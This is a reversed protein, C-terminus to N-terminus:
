EMRVKRRKPSDKNFAMGNYEPRFLRQFALFYYHVAQLVPPQLHISNATYICLRILELLSISAPLNESGSSIQPRSDPIGKDFYFCMLQKQASIDSKEQFSVVNDAALAASIWPVPVPPLSLHFSLTFAGNQGQKFINPEEKATGGARLIWKCPQLQAQHPFSPTPDSLWAWALVSFPKDRSSHEQLALTCFDLIPWCVFPSAGSHHLVASLQPITKLLPFYIPEPGKKTNEVEDAQRDTEM